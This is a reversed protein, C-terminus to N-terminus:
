THQGFQVGTRIKRGFGDSTCGQELTPLESLDSFPEAKAVFTGPIVRGDPM